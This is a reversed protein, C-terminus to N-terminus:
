KVNFLGRLTRQLNKIAYFYEWKSINITFVQKNEDDTYNTIPFTFNKNNAIQAYESLEKYLEKDRDAQKAKISSKLIELTMVEEETRDNKKKKTIENVKSKMAKIEVVINRYPEPMDDFAIHGKRNEEHFISLYNEVSFSQDFM